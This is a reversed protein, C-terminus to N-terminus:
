QPSPEAVTSPAARKQSKSGTSPSPKTHRHTTRHMKGHRVENDVVITNGHKSIGESAQMADVRARLETLQQHEQAAAAMLQTIASKRARELQELASNLLAADSKKETLDAALTLRVLVDYLADVNQMLRLQADLATSSAQTQQLLGPVQHSLDDSISDADNQLQAKWSKSIKWHDIHIQGVSQAVQDLAPRLSESIAPSLTGGQAAMAANSQLGAASARPTLILVQLLIPFLAGTLGRLAWRSHFHVTTRGSNAACMNAPGESMDHVSAGRMQVTAKTSQEM